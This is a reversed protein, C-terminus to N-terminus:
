AASPPARDDYPTLVLRWVVEAAAPRPLRGIRALPQLDLNVVPPVTVHAAFNCIECQSPRGAPAKSDGKAPTQDCCFPCCDACPKDGQIVVAGRKHGPIVVCFWFFLYAALLFRTRRGFM